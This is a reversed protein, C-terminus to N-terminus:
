NGHCTPGIEFSPQGIRPNAVSRHQSFTGFSNDWITTLFPSKGHYFAHLFCRLCIWTLPIKCLGIGLIIKNWLEHLLQHKQPFIHCFCTLPQQLAPFFSSLLGHLWSEFNFNPGHSAEFLFFANGPFILPGMTNTTNELPNYGM